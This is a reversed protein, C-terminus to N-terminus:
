EQSGFLPYVIYQNTGVAAYTQLYRVCKKYKTEENM